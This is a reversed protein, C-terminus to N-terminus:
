PRRRFPITVTTAVEVPQGDVLYPDYRWRRVANLAAGRLVKHGSIVHAERVKGMPSIDLAVVVDGEAHFLDALGGPYVPPAGSIRQREMVAPAVSIRGFPRTSGVAADTRADSEPRVRLVPAANRAEDSYPREVPAPPFAEPKHIRKSAAKQTPAAASVARPVSAIGPAPSPSSPALGPDGASGASPKALPAAIGMIGAGPARVPEGTDAPAAAGASPVRSEAGVRSIGLHSPIEGHNLWLLVLPILGLFVLLLILLIRGIRHPRRSERPEASALLGSAPLEATDMATADLSTTDPTREPRSAYAPEPALPEPATREPALRQEMQEAERWPREPSWDKTVGDAPEIAPGVLTTWRRDKGPLLPAEGFSEGVTEPEYDPQPKLERVGAEPEPFAQPLDLISAPPAGQSEAELRGLREEISALHLKVEISNRELRELTEELRSVPREAFDEQMLASIEEGAGESEPASGPPVPSIEPYGEGAVENISFRGAKREEEIGNAQPM